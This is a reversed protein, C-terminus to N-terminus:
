SFLNQQECLAMKMSDVDFAWMKKLYHMLIGPFGSDLGGLTCKVSHKRKCRSSFNLSDESISSNCMGHEKFPYFLPDLYLYFFVFFAM